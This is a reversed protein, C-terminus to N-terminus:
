FNTYRTPKIILFKDHYMTVHVDFHLSMKPPKSPAETNTGGVPRVELTIGGAAFGFLLLFVSNQLLLHGGIVHMIVAVV